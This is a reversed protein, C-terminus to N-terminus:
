GATVDRERVGPLTRPHIDYWGAELSGGL